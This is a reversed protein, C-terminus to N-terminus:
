QNGKKERDEGTGNCVLCTLGGNCRYREKQGVDAGDAWHAVREGHVCKEKGAGKCAPCDGRYKTSM